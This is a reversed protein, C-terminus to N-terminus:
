KNKLFDEIEELAKRGKKSAAVIMDIEADEETTRSEKMQLTEFRNFLWWSWMFGLEDGWVIEKDRRRKTEFKKAAKIHLPWLILICASLTLTIFCGCIYISGCIWQGVYLVYPLEYVLLRLFNM